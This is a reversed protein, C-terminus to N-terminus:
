QAALPTVILDDFHIEAFTDTGTWAFLGVDGKTYTSDSVTDIQKGDVYLTLTGNGCDAGIKYSAANVAIDPSTALTDNNTLFLDDQALATKAIAYEGNSTLVFYYFQDTVQHACVIGFATSTSNGTNTATVEIHVNELSDEGPVSWVFYDSQFVQMVMEGNTIEVSSKDDTGTGWGGDSGSFDDKYLAGDGVPLDPVACAIVGIILSAVSVLIHKNKM